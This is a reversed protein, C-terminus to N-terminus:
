LVIETGDAALEGARGTRRGERARTCGPLLAPNSNNIHLFVKSDLRSVLWRVRHRRGSGVHRHPGHKKGTKHGLGARIMEDDSGSRATLSCWHPALRDDAKLAATM